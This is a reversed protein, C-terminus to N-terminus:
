AVPEISYWLCPTFYTNRAPNYDVFIRIRDGSVYGKKIFPSFLRPPAFNSFAGIAVKITKDPYRGREVSEVDIDFYSVGSVNPTGQGVVSALAYQKAIKGIIVFKANDRAQRVTVTMDAPNNYMDSYVTKNKDYYSAIVALSIVILAGIATSEILISGRKRPLNKM